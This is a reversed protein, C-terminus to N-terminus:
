SKRKHQSKTPPIKRRQSRPSFVERLAALGEGIPGVKAKIKAGMFSGEITGGTLVVAIALLLISGAFVIELPSEKRIRSITLPNLSYFTPDPQHAFSSGYVDDVYSRLESLNEASFMRQVESDGDLGLAGCRIYLRNLSELFEALDNARLPGDEDAIVLELAEPNELRSSEKQLVM